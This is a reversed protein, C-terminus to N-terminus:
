AGLCGEVAAVNRNADPSGGSPGRANEARSLLASTGFAGPCIPGWGGRRNTAPALM